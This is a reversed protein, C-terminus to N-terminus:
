PKQKPQTKSVPKKALPLGTLSGQQELPGVFVSLLGTDYNLWFLQGGSAQYLVLDFSGASGDITTALSNPTVNTSLMSYRGLNTTDALPTGSFTSGAYLGTGTLGLTFFPDSVPGTLSLAGATMTGQAQMDFECDGCTTYYNYDQWGVAYNNAFSSNATDTQPILAGTGGSLTTDLDLVLAGGGGTSNNPDNLNLTPDVAYIGLLSVDGLPTPTITLSGYGNSVSSFSYFGALTSALTTQVVNDIESSEGVGSFTAASTNTAFQGAAGFSNLYTNGALAMVSNPLSANTFTGAGQSFASGIASDSTDVDIIRIANQNVIYYALVVPTTAYSFAGTITGRGFSDAASVTGTFAQDVQTTGDDNVDFTGSTLATGSLSFVGGFATPLYNPDVGSMIFSYGGGPTGPLTQLDMSGSSTATGDFQTILAHNTNVFEVAFVETGLNGVNTDATTLTLTGTGTNSDV